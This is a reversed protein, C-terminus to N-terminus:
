QVAISVSPSVKCQKGLAKYKLIQNETNTATAHQTAAVINQHICM